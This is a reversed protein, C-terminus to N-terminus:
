PERTLKRLAEWNMRPRLPASGIARLCQTRSLRPKKEPRALRVLMFGDKGHQQVDFIDGPKASPLVVRRKSDAKATM